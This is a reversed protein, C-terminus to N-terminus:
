QPIENFDRLINICESVDYFDSYLNKKWEKQKESEKSFIRYYLPFTKTGFTNLNNRLKKLSENKKKIKLNEYFFEKWNLSIQKENPFQDELSQMTKYITIFDKNKKLRKISKYKINEIYLNKYYYRISPIPDTYDWKMPNSQNKEMFKLFKNKKNKSPLVIDSNVGKLQTSSGNVRYFKNITLKLYGLKENFHLFRNLPYITQITGKGYTQDSGVIIGRKYDKIAAALIESASASFENVLIVLPGTWLVKNEHSKLIKKKKNPKGIQLIPVKGLFFGAIEIVADLSGGGNNRIDILIGKINEKKLEQIIKKMDQAANRGNKNEPNFYFEPLCILGYKDDNKDLIIVSKAFIEKKEIIDRTLIVEEISGNKKQITLKVKSGKKGRILCISNELLMGVINKSESNINKAVRIIRDGIEIKKNKWAPGGSILKVVTPFGKDDQLKVGIGETQGSINLDFFEKEKPSFYNTHPDYQSTLVNVYISFWNSEKKIKIKRFFEQIYEKVKKKYKKKENFFANKWIEKEKTSTIIELLTMYKLYKRWKEIWEKKNKSYSFKQEGLIYIEKQNFDFSKKLIQFCIFEAEKVRQFFRKMIINFFTPDGHIWFDDIKERYLSLDELDKQIFFRKQNDLKEFFKDYVKKSFDNDISIPIPHLFYLTKYISKLIISHKEQEGLPSCFSLSFIFFFGIIVYKIDNLKKIKLNM